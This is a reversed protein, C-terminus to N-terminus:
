KVFYTFSYCCLLVLLQGPFSLVVIGLGNPCSLLIVSASQMNNILCYLLIPQQLVVSFCCVTYCFLSNHCSLLLVSYIATAVMLIAHCFLRNDCSLTMFSFVTAVYFCCSRFLQQPVLAANCFLCYLIIPGTKILSLQRGQGVAQNQTQRYAQYGSQGWRQV